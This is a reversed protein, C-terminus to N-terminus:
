NKAFIRIIMSSVFFLLLFIIPNHRILYSVDNYQM